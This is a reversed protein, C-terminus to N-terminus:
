VVVTNQMRQSINVMAALLLIVQYSCLETGFNAVRGHLIAHRNNPSPVTQMQELNVKSFLVNEVVQVLCESSLEPEFDKFMLVADTVRITKRKPNPIHAVILASLGDIMPLLTSITLEYEGRKHAEIAAHIAKHRDAMYPTDEWGAVLQNLLSYEEEKFLGFVYNLSAEDGQAAHIELIQEFDYGTLSFELGSLGLEAFLKFARKEVEYYRQWLVEFNAPLRSIHSLAADQIAAITESLRFLPDRFQELSVAFQQGIEAIGRIPLIFKNSAEEIARQIGLIGGSISGAADKMAEHMGLIERVPLLTELTKNAQIIAPMSFFISNEIVQLSKDNQMIQQTLLESAHREEKAIWSQLPSILRLNKDWRDAIDTRIFPILDDNKM